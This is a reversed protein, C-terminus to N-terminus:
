KIELGNANMELNAGFCLKLLIVRYGFHGFFHVLFLLKPWNGNEGETFKNLNFDFSAQKRYLMKDSVYVLVLISWKIRM